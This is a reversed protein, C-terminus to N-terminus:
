KKEDESEIGKDEINSLEIGFVGLIKAVTEIQLNDPMKNFLFKIMRILKESEAKLYEIDMYKEM